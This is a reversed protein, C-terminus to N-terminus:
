TGIGELVAKRYADLSESYLQAALLNAESARSIRHQLWARREASDTRTFEVVYDHLRRHARLMNAHRRHVHPAAVHRMFLSAPKVGNDM